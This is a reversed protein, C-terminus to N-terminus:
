TLIAIALGLPVAVLLVVLFALGALEVTAMLRGSVLEGVSRGTILSYGLDGRFIGTLYDIFQIILPDNLGLLERRAQVVSEEATAGLAARVPDGGALRL